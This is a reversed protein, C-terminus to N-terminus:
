STPRPLDTARIRLEDKQLKGNANRPLPDTVVEMVEPVKYNALRTRCHDQLAEVTLGETRARVFAVVREGLIPDPTGVVAAEVVTEHLCLVNEVEVPYIKFGGRNVMDKKRDILRVFGEADIAGIDGSKWYGGCFSAATAESRQWYGPVVMPGAIWLEGAEGPPLERGAEDMVRIDGCRVCRGISEPHAAGEGPPMITAPSTTETAGYANCMALGPLAEQFRAITAGPMPAGGFVALRWSSLDLTRLREELLCLSYMAPVLLAHGIGEAAVLELFGAAKFDRLLVQCGGLHLFPLVVGCLGAVHSGPIALVTREGDPLGLTDAWHLCSHVAGLHTLTAGKPQGTTGSTYLIAFVEDEDIEVAPASTEAALLDAFPPGEGTVAIRHSLAPLAAADPLEAGLAAEYILACAGCDGCIYLIEPRRLRVGIPVAIAGLRAIALIALVFEVRNDLLLAIRDGRGLGRAALGAALAEVLRDLAGYTLRRPGDVLCEGEPNRTAAARFLSDVSTPRDRYCTIIREWHAERRVEPMADSM